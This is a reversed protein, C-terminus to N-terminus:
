HQIVLASTFYNIWAEDLKLPIDSGACWEGLVDDVLWDSKLRFRTLGGGTGGCM